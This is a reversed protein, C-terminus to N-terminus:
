IRTLDGSARSLVRQRRCQAIADANRVGEWTEIMALLDPRWGNSRCLDAHLCDGGGAPWFGCVVTGRVGPSESRRIGGSRPAMIRVINEAQEKTEVNNILIGNLGIDLAHKVM